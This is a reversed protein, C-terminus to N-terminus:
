LLGWRPSGFLDYPPLLIPLSERIHWKLKRFSETPPLGHSFVPLSTMWLRWRCTCCSDGIVRSCSCQGSALACRYPAKKSTTGQHSRQHLQTSHYQGYMTQDRYAIVIVEKSDWVVPAMVKVMSECQTVCRLVLQRSKASLQDFSGQINKTSGAESRTDLNQTSM